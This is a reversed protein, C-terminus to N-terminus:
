GDNQPVCHRLIEFFDSEENRVAENLTLFAADTMEGGGRLNDALSIKKIIILINIKETM